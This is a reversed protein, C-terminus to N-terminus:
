QAKVLELNVIMFSMVRPDTDTVRVPEGDAVFEILLKDYNVDIPESIYEQWGDGMKFEAIKEDAVKVKLTKGPAAPNVTFKLIAKKEDTDNVLVKYEFVLSKSTWYWWNTGDTERNYGGSVTALYFMDRVDSARRLAIRGAGVGQYGEHPETFEIVWDATKFPMTRHEPPLHGTIYGDDTYDSALKRDLLIYAVMQRLKHHSPGLNLYIVEDPDIDKVAERLHLFATFPARNYGTENLFDQTIHKSVILLNVVACYMALFGLFIPLLKTRYKKSYFAISSGLLIISFPSAWKAIKFQLFSHGVENATIPASVYRFYLFALFYVFLISVHVLLPNSLKKKFTLFIFYLIASFLAAFVVPTVYKGFIWFGFATKFGSSFALFEFPNWLIPWGIEGKGSGIGFLIKVINNLVRVSEFNVFLAAQFIVFVSSLLLKKINSPDFIIKLFLFGLLAVIIFPLMDNYCFVVIAFLLSIPIAGIFLKGLQKVRPSENIFAAFLTTSGAAFALGFTQPFFANTAGFHWGTFMTAAALATLLAIKRSGRMIFNVAGGIALSGAIFPVAIVAPYALYSWDLGFIAQVWGLFFSGGMRSGAGQYLVVQSLAPYYGSATVVESFAHKQLWQSHVLYTFIDNFSNYGDFRILPAFITTSAILSFSFLLLYQAPPTQRIDKRLFFLSIAVVLLLEVLVILQSFPAVWGHITAVLIFIALGFLPSFYLKGFPRLRYPLLKAISLGVITAMLLMTLMISLSIIFLM